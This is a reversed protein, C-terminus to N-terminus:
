GKTPIPAATPSEAPDAPAASETSTTGTASPTQSASTSSTASSTAKTSTPSASTTAKTSTPKSTTPSSSATPKSSSTAKSEEAKVVQSITTGSGGGLAKGTGIEYVTIAVLAVVFIAVASIAAVIVPRRGRKTPETVPASAPEASADRFVTDDLLLTQESSPTVRTVVATTETATLEETDTRTTKAIAESVKRHTRDIGASYLTGAVGGVLSAVAAGIVTGAVGLTSGIAAATAAALAGGAIQPVSFAVKIPEKESGDKKTDTM